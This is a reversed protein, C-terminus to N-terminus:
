SKVPFGACMAERDFKLKSMIKDESALSVQCYVSINSFAADCLITDRKYVQSTIKSGRNGLVRGPLSSKYQDSFILKGPEM